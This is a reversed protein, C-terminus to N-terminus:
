RADEREVVRLHQRRAVARPDPRGEAYAGGKVVHYGGDAQVKVRCSPCVASQFVWDWEPPLVDGPTTEHCFECVWGDM